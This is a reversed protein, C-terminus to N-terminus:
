GNKKEEKAAEAVEPRSVAVHAPAVIGLRVKRTGIVLVKVEIDPGIKISQEVERSLVLM